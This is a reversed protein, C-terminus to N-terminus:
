SLFLKGVNEELSEKFLEHIKRSNKKRVFDDPDLGEPLITVLPNVHATALVAAVQESAAIGRDDPDLLVVAHDTIAKLFLAQFESMNISCLAVVNKLEKEYMGMVDFYGEVVIVYGKEIIEKYARHVNFLNKNKNYPENVWKSKSWKEIKAEALTPDLYKAKYAAEVEPVKSSLRRGAMAIDRGQLGQIPLGLRGWLLDTKTNSGVPIYHLGFEQVTSQSLQKQEIIETVEDM